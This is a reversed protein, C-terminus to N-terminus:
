GPNRAESVAEEVQSVKLSADLVQSLVDKWLPKQPSPLDSKEITIVDYRTPISPSQNQVIGARLDVCWCPLSFGVRCGKTTETLFSLMQCKLYLLVWISIFKSVSGM